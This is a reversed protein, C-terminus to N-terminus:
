ILGRIMSCIQELGLLEGLEACKKTDKLAFGCIWRIISVKTRDLKVEHEMKLLEIDSLERCTVYLSHREVVLAVGMLLVPVPFL